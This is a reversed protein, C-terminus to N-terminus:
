PAAPRGLRYSRLRYKPGDGEGLVCFGVRLMARHSAENPVDVAAFVEAQALTGFAHDLVARLSETAFGRGHADPALAVLVEVGGAMRPEVAAAAGVAVLAVCGLMRGDDRARVLWLGRGEANQALASAVVEAVPEREVEVDDWLYRRVIPDRFLAWLADVDQATAPALRTRPTHLEPLM